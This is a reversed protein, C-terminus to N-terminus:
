AANWQPSSAWAAAREMRRERKRQLVRQPDADYREKAEERVCQICATRLGDANDAARYFNLM